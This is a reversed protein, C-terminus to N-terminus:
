TTGILTAVCNAATADVTTPGVATLISGTAVTKATGGTTAFTFAGGTSIQITGIEVADDQISLTFSATPNIEITGVSGAFNAPFDVDRVIPIVEVIEDTTPVAAFSVLLDYPDPNTVGGDLPISVVDTGDCYCMAYAAPALTAGTGALTKITCNFSSQNELIFLHSVDPHILDFNASANNDAIIYIARVASRDSLDSTNNYPIIVDDGPSFADTTDVTLSASLASELQFIATNAALAKQAQNESVQLVELLSSVAM